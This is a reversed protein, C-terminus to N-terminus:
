DGENEKLIESIHARVTYMPLFLFKPPVNHMYTILHKAITEIDNEGKKLKERIFKDYIEVISKCRDIYKIVESKGFASDGSVLYPHGSIINEIDMKKLKELTNKYDTLNMYLATGQSATGNGQLSDGTILSKTKLDYFCVCDNDHGKTVILRLRDAVIDGEELVRDVDVGKLIAPPLASNKPFTARILKSFKLPDHIKPVSEKYTAVKIDALEKIRNHGGVHDGHCHTNLLWDINSLSYGFDKLAPVLCKDINEADIGSDILVKQSGDIFVIGNWVGTEPTELRYIDDIMKKFKM